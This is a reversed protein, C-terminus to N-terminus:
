RVRKAPQKFASVKPTKVPMSRTWVFGNNWHINQLDATLRGTVGWTPVNLAGAQIQATGKAGTETTLELIVDSGSINAIGAGAKWPGLLQNVSAIPVYNKALNVFLTFRSDDPQVVDLDAALYHSDNKLQAVVEADLRSSFLPWNEGSKYIIGIPSKDAIFKLAEDASMNPKEYYPLPIYTLNFGGRLGEYDMLRLHYYRNGGLFIVTKNTQLADVKLAIERVLKDVQWNRPDPQTDPYFKLAAGIPHNAAAQKIFGNSYLYSSLPLLACLAFVIMASKNRLYLTVFAGALVFLPGFCPYLYRQDKVTGFTAILFPLAFWILIVVFLSSSSVDQFQCPLKELRQLGSLILLFTACFLTILMAPNLFVALWFDLITKISFVDKFGYLDALGQSSLWGTLELIPKLNYIYYPGALLLVLLMTPYFLGFSQRISFTKAHQYFLIIFAPLVFAPFTVKTLLGLSILFGSIVSWKKQGTKYTLWLSYIAAGIFAVLVLEVTFTHALYSTLPCLGFLGFAVFGAKDGQDEGVLERAIGVIAWALLFWALNISVVAADLSPGFVYFAPQVIVLILPARGRDLNFIASIFDGLGSQVLTSHLLTSQYLYLGQDWAPPSNDVFSWNVSIGFFVVSAIVTAYKWINTSHYLLSMTLM